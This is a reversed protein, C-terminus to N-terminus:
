PLTVEWIGQHGPVYLPTKLVQPDRLVLGFRSGDCPCMAFEDDAPTLWRAWVVQVTGIVAGAVGAHPATGACRETQLWRRALLVAHPDRVKGAHIAIRQGVLNRFRDHGRTEIIKWGAIVWSAWPRYLTIARM